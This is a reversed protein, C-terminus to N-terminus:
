FGPDGGDTDCRTLPQAVRPPVIRLEDDTPLLMGLAFLRNFESATTLEVYTMNAAIRQARQREARSLLAWRAGVVAANGVQQYVANEYYPLLGIDLASDINLFSGFAGAIIVREVDEPHTNTVELLVELGARIAGKALQIENVDEQGISVDRGSGTETAPSLLMEFGRHGERVRPSERDIRGRENILNWRRLEAVADVIGSGCMGVPATHQITKLRVGQETLRVAEIAGSAARM